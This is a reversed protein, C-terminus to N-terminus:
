RRRGVLYSATDPDYAVSDSKREIRDTEARERARRADDSLYEDHDVIGSPTSFGWSSRRPGAIFITWVDGAREDLEVRHLKSGGAIALDGPRRYRWGTALDEWYGGAVVYSAWWAWPHNHRHPDSDGRHFRHLMVAFWRSDASGILYYRSLYLSHGDRDLIRRHRGHRDLWGALREYWPREPPHVLRMVLFHVVTGVILAFLLTLLPYEIV